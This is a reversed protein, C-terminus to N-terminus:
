TGEHGESPLKCMLNESFGEELSDVQRLGLGDNQKEAPKIDGEWCRDFHIIM